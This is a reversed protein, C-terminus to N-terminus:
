AVKSYDVAMYGSPTKAVADPQKKMLEQAMVGRMRQKDPDGKYNYEYVNNGGPTKGVKDINEKLRKDSFLYSGAQVLSGIDGMLGNHYGVQNQYAQNNIGAIDTGAVNAGPVNGFSPMQPQAGSQLANYTQLPQNYQAYVDQMGQAHAANNVGAQNLLNNYNQTLASNNLNANFMGQQNQAAMNALNIQTQADAAHNALGANALAQDFGQQQAQNAFQGSQLNMGFATNGANLGQGFAANQAQQQSFTQNRALESQARDFAASGQTIGQAALQAQLDNSQNKFQPNLYAMQNQYAADQAGQIVGPINSWDGLTRQVDGGGNGVNTVYKGTAAQSAPGASHTYATNLAASMGPSVGYDLKGVGSTDIPKSYQNAVNGLLNGSINQQQQQNKLQQDLIGQVQPNLSTTQQYKPTGDANTGVVQYTSSGFPSYQDVRNLNANAIATNINSGTQANATDQASSPKPKSLFGM